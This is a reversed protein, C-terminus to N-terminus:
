NVLGEVAGDVLFLGAQNTGQVFVIVGHVLTEFVDLGSAEV